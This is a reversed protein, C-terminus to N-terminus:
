AARGTPIHQCGSLHLRMTAPARSYTPIGIGAPTLLSYIDIKIQTGVPYLLHPSPFGIASRQYFGYTLTLADLVPINSLGNQAADYLMYKFLGCASRPTYLRHLEFDYNQVQITFSQPVAWADFGPGVRGTWTIPIDIRYTYWRRTYPYASDSPEMGAFLKAGQVLFQGKWNPPLVQPDDNNNSPKLIGFLDFKIQGGAPYVIQPSFLRGRSEPASSLSQGEPGYMRYTNMARVNCAEGTTFDAEDSDINLARAAFPADSQLNLIANYVDSNLTLNDTDFAYIFPRELM